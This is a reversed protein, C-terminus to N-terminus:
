RIPLETAAPREMKKDPIVRCVAGLVDAKAMLSSPYGIRFWGGTDLVLLSGDSDEMVDTIHIDPSHM